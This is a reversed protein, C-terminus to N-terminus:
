SYSDEHSTKLMIFTKEGGSITLFKQSYIHDPNPKYSLQLLTKLISIHYSYGQNFGFGSM